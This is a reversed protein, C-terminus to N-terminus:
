VLAVSVEETMIYKLVSRQKELHSIKGRGFCKVIAQDL